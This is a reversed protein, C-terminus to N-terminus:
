REPGEASSWATAIRSLRIQEPSPSRSGVKRRSTQCSEKREVAPGPFRRIVELREPASDRGLGASRGEGPSSRGSPPRLREPIEALVAGTAPNLIKM